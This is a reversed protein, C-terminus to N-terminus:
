KETWILTGMYVSNSIKKRNASVFSLYTHIVTQDPVDKLQLFETGAIRRAGSLLYQADNLAPIYAVLLVTDDWSVKDSADKNWAFELGSAIAKVSLEQTVELDGISLLVKAYDIEQNPFSGKIANNFIYAYAMNFITKDSGRNVVEYGTQLFEKLPKLFQNVQKCLLYFALQKETHPKTNVGILRKVVKKGLYYTVTNGLKGTFEEGPNKRTAM